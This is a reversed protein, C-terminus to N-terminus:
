LSNIAGTPDFEETSTGNDPQEHYRFHDETETVKNMPKHGASLKVTKEM